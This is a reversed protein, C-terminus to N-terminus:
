IRNQEAWNNSALYWLKQFKLAGQKWWFRVFIRNNAFKQFYAKGFAIRSNEPIKFFFQSNFIIALITSNELNQVFLTQFGFNCFNSQGVGCFKVFKTWRLNSINSANEVNELTLTQELSSRQETEKWQINANQYEHGRRMELSLIQPKLNSHEDLLKLSIVLKGPSYWCKLIQM